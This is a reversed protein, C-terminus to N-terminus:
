FHHWSRPTFVVHLDQSYRLVDELQM